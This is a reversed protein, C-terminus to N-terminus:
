ETAVSQKLQYVKDINDVYTNPNYSLRLLKDKVKLMKFASKIKGVNTLDIGFADWIEGYKDTNFITRTQGSTNPIRFSAM